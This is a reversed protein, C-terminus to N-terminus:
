NWWCSEEPKDTMEYVLKGGNKIAEFPIRPVKLKKGNLFASKIYCNKGSNNRVEITFEKGQYYRNDLRITIKDFLPSTIEMEPHATVGGNMEFLGISSMVFWSSMQGEDEDGEWGHYPTDGYFRDLIERTYQQCLWPKDLYNFIFASNMNVENGQNIYFEASQGMTRDFVHAAFNHKRSKEFGETLRQIARERGIIDLLGDIDHPVYWSYQWSNGEIFGNNSFVDFDKDWNGKKDKRCVYKYEPHIINKYNMSRKEFLSADKKNKLAKALQAVCYDDYAYDLTKSVVNVEMPMYGYKVYADLDIQGCQGGCPHEGGQETVMKRVARYIEDGDRRIGKQYAAVMLAIEHSGEMIGSYEIGAPGKSTWGTHKFMELQTTVWNDMIDPSMISWLGNLNWFSNWFADGGYMKEGPKLERIDECADRYKGDCDNWTQKGAFARYLNTYFKCRNKETGGEIKVRSLLENWENRADKVCADFNWDFPDLEKEMNDRAGEVSVLSIASQVLIVEGQRTNWTAYAGIDGKGSMEDIDDKQIGENWGNLHDFPRSFRVVFYLTWDNWSSWSGSQCQAYGEIESNNVKTIRADKVTFGYDWETPFLLDILIRSEACEPFTYRQFGCRTTTTIEAKVNHDYLEVAYYGPTAKETEKLIRSHYGANAGKYPSDPSPNSLALDATTPMLMLGGMTWAHIHSFGSVSNIAYEYGGMWRNGQNDPGLQVMGMPRQAYPGLMWRSNSTGVFCDVYDVPAKEAFGLSHGVVMLLIFILNRKKM